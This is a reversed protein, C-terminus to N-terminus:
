DVKFQVLVLENTSAWASVVQIAGKGDARDLSRRITEGDLAIVDEALNALASMWATFVQQLRSPDLLAFVHGFMDHSPIGHQLDLFEALWSHHAHGWQEIGVWNQAGCITVLITMTIIADLPHLTTPHQRRPEHVVAFYSFMQNIANPTEM